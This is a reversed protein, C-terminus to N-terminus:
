YIARTSYLSQFCQIIRDFLDKETVFLITDHQGAFSADPLDEATGSSRVAVLSARLERFYNLLTDHDEESFKIEGIQSRITRATEETQKINDLDITEIQKQIEETDVYKKFLSSTICFGNPVPFKQFMKGLCYAKGGVIERPLGSLDKLWIITENM